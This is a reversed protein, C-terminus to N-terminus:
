FSLGPYLGQAALTQRLQLRSPENFKLLFLTTRGIATLGLIYGGDLQFHEAWSQSRPNFLPTIEGTLPDISTLDSGKHRNCPLCALVLNESVTRGGHKLATAHDVEHSYISFTQHILCYECAGSARQTVLQRLAVPIYDAM